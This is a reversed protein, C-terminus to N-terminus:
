RRSLDLTERLGLVHMVIDMHMELFFNAYIHKSFYLPVQHHHPFMGWVGIFRDYGFPAAAELKFERLRLPQGAARDPPIDFLTGKVDHGRTADRVVPWKDPGM